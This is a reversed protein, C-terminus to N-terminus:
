WLSFVRRKGCFSQGSYFVDIKFRFGLHRGDNERTKPSVFFTTSRQRHILVDFFHIDNPLPPLAVGLLVLHEHVNLHM